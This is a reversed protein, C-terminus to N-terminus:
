CYFFSYLEICQSKKILRLIYCLPKKVEIEFDHSDFASNKEVGADYLESKGISDPHMLAAHQLLVLYMENKSEIASLNLDFTSFIAQRDKPTEGDFTLEPPM